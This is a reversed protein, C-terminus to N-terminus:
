LVQKALKAEMRNRREVASQTEKSLCTPLNLTPVSGPKLRKVTVTGM